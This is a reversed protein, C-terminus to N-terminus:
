AEGGLADADAPRPLEKDRLWELRDRIGILAGRDDSMFAQVLGDEIEALLEGAKLFALARWDGDKAREGAIDWPNEPAHHPRRRLLRM